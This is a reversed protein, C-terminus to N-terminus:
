NFSDFRDEQFFVGLSNHEHSSDMDSFRLLKFAADATRHEAWICQYGLDFLPKVIEKNTAGLVNVASPDDFELLIFPKSRTITEMAGPIVKAQYGEIDIKILDPEVANAKCWDDVSWYDMDQIGPMDYERGTLFRKAASKGRNARLMMKDKLTLDNCSRLSFGSILSKKNKESVDSLACNVATIRSVGLHSNGSINKQMAAFSEPNMEFSYVMSTKSMSLFLLSFYGYLAGIDFLNDTKSNALITEIVAIMGPEHISGSVHRDRMWQGSGGLVTGGASPDFYIPEYRNLRLTQKDPYDQFEHSLSSVRANVEDSFWKAVDRM